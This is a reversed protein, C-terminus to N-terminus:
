RRDGDPLTWIASKICWQEKRNNRMELVEMERLGLVQLGAQLYRESEDQGHERRQAGRYNDGLKEQASLRDSLRQCFEASGIYWGRKVQQKYEGRRGADPDEEFKMKCEIKKQIRDIIGTKRRGAELNTIGKAAGALWSTKPGYRYLISLQELSLEGFTQRNRRRRCSHLTHPFHTGRKTSFQRGPTRCGTEFAIFFVM